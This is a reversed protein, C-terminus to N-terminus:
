KEIDRFNLGIIGRKSKEELFSILKNLDLASEPSFNKIEEKLLILSQNLPLKSKYILNHAKRLLNISEKNFLNRKLGKINVGEVIAPNGVTMFYPPIDHNVRTLGGTISYSGVRVFQHIGTLGGIVSYDNIHCYGGLNVSNALINQNGIICDHGVHVYTMLLNNDGILTEGGSISSRNITVYERIINHDGIKVYSIDSTSKLDQSNSGIVAGYFIECYEGITSNEIIVHPYIITNKGIKVNSGIISYAGIKVGEDLIASPEIIATPHIEINNISSFIELM